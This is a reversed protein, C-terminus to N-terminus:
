DNINDPKNNNPNNRVYEINNRKYIHSDPHQGQKVEKVMQSRAVNGRGTITYSTNGGNKGGGNGNISSGKAM